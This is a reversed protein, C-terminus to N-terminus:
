FIRKGKLSERLRPFYVKNDRLLGEALNKMRVSFFTGQNSYAFYKDYSDYINVYQSVYTFAYLTTGIISFLHKGQFFITSTNSYGLFLFSSNIFFASLFTITSVRKGINDKSNRGLCLGYTQLSFFQVWPRTLTQPIPLLMNEKINDAWRVKDRLIVRIQSIKPVTRQQKLYCLSM